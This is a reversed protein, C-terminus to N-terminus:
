WPWCIFVNQSLPQFYFLYFYIEKPSVREDKGSTIIIFRCSLLIRSIPSVRNQRKGLAGETKAGIRWKKDLNAGGSVLVLSPQPVHRPLGLCICWLMSMIVEPEFLFLRKGSHPSADWTIALFRYLTFPVKQTFGVLLSNQLCHTESPSCVLCAQVWCPKVVLATLYFLM